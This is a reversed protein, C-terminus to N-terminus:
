FILLNANVGIIHAMHSSSYTDLTTPLPLHVSYVTSVYGSNLLKYVFGRLLLINKNKAKKNEIIILIIIIM